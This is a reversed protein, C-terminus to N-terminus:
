FRGKTMEYWARGNERDRRQVEGRAELFAIANRGEATSDSLTYAPAFYVLDCAPERRLWGRSSLAAEMVPDRDKKLNLGASYQLCRMGQRIVSGNRVVPEDYILLDRMGLRKAMHYMFLDQLRYHALDRLAARGRGAAAPPDGLLLSPEKADGMRANKPPLLASSLTLTLAGDGHTAWTWTPSAEARGGSFRILRMTEESFPGAAGHRIAKSVEDQSVRLVQALESVGGLVTVSAARNKITARVAWRVLRHGAVSGMALSHALARIAVRDGDRRYAHGVQLIEAIDWDLTSM